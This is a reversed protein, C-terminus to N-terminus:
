NTRLWTKYQNIFQNNDNNNHSNNSNNSTASILLNIECLRLAAWFIILYIANLIEHKSAKYVLKKVTNYVLM